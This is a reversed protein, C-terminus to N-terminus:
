GDHNAIMPVRARLTKVPDKQSGYKVHIGDIGDADVQVGREKGVEAEEAQFSGDRGSEKERAKPNERGRQVPRYPFREVAIM